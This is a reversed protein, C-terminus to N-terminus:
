KNFYYNSVVSKEFPHKSPFSADKDISPSNKRKKVKNYIDNKISNLEIKKFKETM